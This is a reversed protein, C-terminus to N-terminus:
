NPKPSNKTFSDLSEVFEISRALDLWRKELRLFDERLGPDSQDAAQRACLEAHQLCERIQESLRNLVVRGGARM